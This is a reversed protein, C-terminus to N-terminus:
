EDEIKVVFANKFGLEAVKKALAEARELDYERGVVYKYRAKPNKEDEYIDVKIELDEFVKAESSLLKNTALLQVRYYKSRNEVPAKSQFYKKVARYISSALINQNEENNLYKEENNNSMYGFEILVSPMTTYQTVYLNRGRMKADIVGRSQRKAGKQLETICLDAIKKSAPMSLNYIHAEVGNVAKNKNSNCHVSIFLDAKKDNALEVRDQLSVFKDTSRTYYVDINPINQKIYKGIKFSIELNLDKEHALNAKGKPKGPDNGGHGPDIIVILREQKKQAYINTFVNFICLILFIKKVSYM